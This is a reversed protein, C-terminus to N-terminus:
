RGACDICGATLRAILEFDAWTLQTFLPIRAERILKIGSLTATIPRSSATIPQQLRAEDRRVICRGSNGRRRSIRRGRDRYTQGDALRWFHRLPRRALRRRLYVIRFLGDPRPMEHGRGLAPNGSFPRANLAVPPGARGRGSRYQWRPPRTIHHRIVEAVQADAGSIPCRASQNSGMRRAHQAIPPDSHRCQSM